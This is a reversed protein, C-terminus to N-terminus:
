GTPCGLGQRYEQPLEGNAVQDAYRWVLSAFSGERDMQQLVDWQRSRGLLDVAQEQAAEDGDTTARQYEELLDCAVAATVAAGLQYPDMQASTVTAKDFGPRVDVDALMEAIRAPREDDTVFREPLSAQFSADDTWELQAVLDTFEARTLGSVRVEPFRDGEPAGIVTHDQDNYAWMTGTAGLIDIETGEDIGSSDLHRRDDVYSPRLTTPRLSIEVLDDGKLYQVERDGGGVQVHVATWGATPLRVWDYGTPPTPESAVPVKDPEADRLETVLVPGAVLAAAAAAAVVPILWRRPPRPNPQTARDPVTVPTAMIEELLEARAQQLPLGRVADDSIPKNM